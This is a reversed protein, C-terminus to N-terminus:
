VKVMCFILGIYKCIIGGDIVSDKPADLFNIANYELLKIPIFLTNLILLTENYCDSKM